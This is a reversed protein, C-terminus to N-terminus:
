NLAQGGRQNLAIQPIVPAVVRTALTIPEGCSPCASRAVAVEGDEQVASPAYPMAPDRTVLAQRAARQRAALRGAEIRAHLAVLAGRAGLASDVAAWFAGGRPDGAEAGTVASRSWCIQRALAGQSMGARERWAALQAGLDRRAAALAEREDQADGAPVDAAQGAQHDGGSETVTGSGPAVGVRNRGTQTAHYLAVDASTLLDNLDRSAPNEVAAIGITVTVCVLDQGPGAAILQGALNARLRDAVQMAASADAAPLLFVFQEDGFRGLLDGPRLGTRLIAAVGELVADGAAHGYHDHVARLQDIEAIGVAMPLGPHQARVLQVAAETRWAVANLLGTKTDLRAESVLQAHRFSRLLVVVLPFAPLLLVLGAGTIVGTLVIAAAIECLDNLMPGATFLRERVSVTRDSAWVATMVLSKNLAAWLLTCGTVALLWLLPRGGTAPLTHFAVSAAALSLGNAASSFVRRHVVTHRTRLQLLGYTAVPALLCYVPPLALAIPILWIGHVDKDLGPLPKTARSIEVALGGFGVLLGFFLVDHIRWSTFAAASGAAAAAAAITGTVYWRLAPPLQWVAWGTIRVRFYALGRARRM